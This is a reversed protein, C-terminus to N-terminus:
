QRHASSCRRNEIASICVHLLVYFRLVSVVTFIDLFAVSFVLWEGIWLVDYKSRFEFLIFFLRWQDRFSHFSPIFLYYSWFLACFSFSSACNVESWRYIFYFVFPLPVSITSIIQIQMNQAARSSLIAIAYLLHPFIHASLSYLLHVRFHNQPLLLLLQQM